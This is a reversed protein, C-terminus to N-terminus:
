SPNARKGLETVGVAAGGALIGALVAGSITRENLPQGDAMLLLVVIGVGAVIALAPSLWRPPDGSWAMRIVDVLVKVFTAAAASQILINDNV